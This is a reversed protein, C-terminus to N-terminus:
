AATADGPPARAARSGDCACGHPPLCLRAPHAAHPTPTSPLRVQQEDPKLNMSRMVVMLEETNLIGDGGKDFLRFADDLQQDTPQSMQVSLPGEVFLPEKPSGQAGGTARVLASIGLAAKKKGMRKSLKQVQTKVQKSVRDKMRDANSIYM